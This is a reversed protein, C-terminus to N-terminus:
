FVSHPDFISRQVNFVWRDLAGEVQFPSPVVYWGSPCVNPHKECSGGGELFVRNHTGDWGTVMWLVSTVVKPRGTKNETVSKRTPPVSMIAGHRVLSTYTHM